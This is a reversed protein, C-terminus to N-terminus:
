GIVSIPNGVKLRRGWPYTKGVGIVYTSYGIKLIRGNVFSIEVKLTSKGVSNRLTALSVRSNVILLKLALQELNSSNSPGLTM